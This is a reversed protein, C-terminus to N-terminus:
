DYYRRSHRHGDGRYHRQAPVWRPVHGRGFRRWKRGHNYSAHKRNDRYEPRVPVYVIRTPTTPQPVYVTRSTSPRSYRTGGSAVQSGVSAGILTGAATAALQGKGSGINSGVIGGIAAGFLLGLIDNQGSAQAPKAGTVAAGFALMASLAIAIFRTTKTTKSLTKM